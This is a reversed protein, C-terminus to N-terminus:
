GAAVFKMHWCVLFCVHTRYCKQITFAVYEKDVVALIHRADGGIRGEEDGVM